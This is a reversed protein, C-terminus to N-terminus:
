FRYDTRDTRHLGSVHQAPNRGYVAFISFQLKTSTELKQSQNRQYWIKWFGLPHRFSMKWFTALHSTGKLIYDITLVMYDITLGSCAYHLSSFCFVCIHIFLICTTCIYSLEYGFVALIGYFLMLVSTFVFFFCHFLSFLTQFHRFTYLLWTFHM